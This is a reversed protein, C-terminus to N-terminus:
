LLKTARAREVAERRTNVGLKRYISQQHTKVTNGSVFLDAAIEATKLMTPLYSLVTLERETLPELPPPVAGAAASNGHAATNDAAAALTQTFDLHRAILHQHRTLLASIRPGAAVFPRTIDTDHALEIAHTIATLAATARNMRDAAVASLISAEIMAGPYPASGPPMPDLLDLAAGPQNIMLRAKAHVIRELASTYETPEHHTDLLNMATVETQAEVTATRPAGDLLAMEGFADGAKLHVPRKGPPKVVASGDLIVYFNDARDGARVIPTFRAYRRTKALGAIKNLHRKSLGAFLPIEGLVDAWGRGMADSAM